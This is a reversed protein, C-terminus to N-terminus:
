IETVVRPVMPVSQALSVKPPAIMSAAPLKRPLRPALSKIVPRTTSPIRPPKTATNPKRGCIARKNRSREMKSSIPYMTRIANTISRIKRWKPSEPFLKIGSKIEEPHPIGPIIAELVMSFSLSRRRVIM